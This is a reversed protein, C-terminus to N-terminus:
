RQFCIFSLLEISVTVRASSSSLPLFWSRSVGSSRMSHSNRVPRKRRDRGFGVVVDGLCDGIHLSRQFVEPFVREFLTEVQFLNAVVFKGVEIHEALVFSGFLLDPLTDVQVAFPQRHVVAELPGVAVRRAVHHAGIGFHNVQAVKDGSILQVLIVLFADPQGAGSAVHRFYVAGSMARSAPPM